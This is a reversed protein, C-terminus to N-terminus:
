LLPQSKLGKNVNKTKNISMVHGVIDLITVLYQRGANITRTDSEDSSPCKRTTAHGEDTLRNKHWKNGLKKLM